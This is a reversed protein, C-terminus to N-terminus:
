FGSAMETQKRVEELEEDTAYKEGQRKDQMDTYSQDIVFKIEMVKKELDNFERKDLKNAHEKWTENNSFLAPTAKLDANDLWQTLQFQENGTLHHKVYEKIKENLFQKITIGNKMLIKKCENYLEEQEVEFTRLVM